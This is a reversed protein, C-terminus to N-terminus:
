DHEQEGKLKESVTNSVLTSLTVHNKIEYERLKEWADDELCIIEFKMFQFFPKVIYTFNNM